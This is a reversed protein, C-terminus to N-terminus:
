DDNNKTPCMEHSLGWIKKTKLKRCGKYADWIVNDDIAMDSLHKKLLKILRLTYRCKKCPKEPYHEISVLYEAALLADDFTLKDARKKKM